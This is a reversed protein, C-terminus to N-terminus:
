PAKIFELSVCNTGRIDWVSYNHDDDGFGTSDLGTVCQGKLKWGDVRTFRKTDPNYGVMMIQHGGVGAWLPRGMSLEHQIFARYIENCGNGYYSTQINEVRPAQRVRIKLDPQLKTIMMLLQLLSIGTDSKNARIQNAKFQEFTFPKIDGKKMHFELLHYASYVTCTNGIQRRHKVGLKEVQDRISVAARTLSKPDDLMESAITEMAVNKINQPIGSWVINGKEDAADTFSQMRPDKKVIIELAEKIPTKKSIAFPNPAFSIRKTAFATIYEEYTYGNGMPGCCAKIADVLKPDTKVKSELTDAEDAEWIQPGGIATYMRIKTGVKEYAYPSDCTSDTLTYSGDAEIEIRKIPFPLARPKIRSIRLREADQSTDRTREPRRPTASVQPATPTSAVATVPAVPAKGPKNITLVKDTHRITITTETESIVEVPSGKPIVTSGVNQGNYFLPVTIDYNFTRSGSTGTPAPPAPPAPACYSAVTVATIAVLALSVMSTAIPHRRLKRGIAIARDAIRDIALNNTNMDPNTNM